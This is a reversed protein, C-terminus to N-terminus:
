KAEVLVGYAAASEMLWHWVDAAYSRPVAIEYTPTADTQWFHARVHGISTMATDGVAFARPHLDILIGKVLVDRARPGSIRVLIRADSQDTVSCLNGVEARLERVLAEGSVREAMALWRAPGAWVFSLAEGTVVRPEVPLEIGLARRVAANLDAARNKRALVAALARDQVLGITVGPAGTSGGVRGSVVLQELGSRAVLEPM